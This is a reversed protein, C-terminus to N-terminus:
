LSVDGKPGRPLHQRRRNAEDLRDARVDSALELRLVTAESDSRETHVKVVDGEKAEAPLWARPVHFTHATDDEM